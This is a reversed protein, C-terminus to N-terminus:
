VENETILSVNCSFLVAPLLPPFFMERFFVAPGGTLSSTDGLVLGALPTGVEARLAHIFFSPM